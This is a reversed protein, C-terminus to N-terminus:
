GSIDFDDQHPVLQYTKSVTLMGPIYGPRHSFDADMTIIRDTGLELARRFGAVYATGLGLKGTRHIVKVRKPHLCHIEDVIEGTGDPSSDDVIVVANVGEQKLVQTTLSRINGAENYTPLVVIARV